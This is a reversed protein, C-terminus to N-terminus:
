RKQMVPQNEIMEAECFIRQRWAPPLPNTSELSTVTKPKTVAQWSQPFFLQLQLSLFLRRAISVQDTHVQLARIRRRNFLYSSGEPSQSMVIVGNNAGVTGTLQLSLFLRRAISVLSQWIAPATMLKRQLSLFLRRAISVYSSRYRGDKDVKGINFLYSSGEPSQSRPM